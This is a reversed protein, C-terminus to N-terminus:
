IDAKTYVNYLSKPMRFLTGSCRRLGQTAHPADAPTPPEAQSTPHPNFKPAPRDPGPRREDAARRSAKLSIAFVIAPALMPEISDLLAIRRAGPPM